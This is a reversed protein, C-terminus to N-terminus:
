FGRGFAGRSHPRRQVRQLSEYAMLGLFLSLFVNGLLYAILTALAGAVVGGLQAQRLRDPGLVIQLIRAGDLSGAPILNLLTWWLNVEQFDRLLERVAFPLTAAPQMVGWSEAGACPILNWRLGCYVAAWLLLGFAPGACVVGLGPRSAGGGSSPVVTCGGFAQLVIEPSRGARRHVLAHGLEHWLLSLLVVGLWILLLVIADPRPSSIVPGSLLAASLWFWGHVTVPIGFLGFRIM